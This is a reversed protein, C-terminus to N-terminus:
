RRSRSPSSNGANGQKKAQAQKKKGRVPIFGGADSGKDGGKDGGGGEKLVSSNSQTAPGSSVANPLVEPLTATEAALGEAVAITDPTADTDRRRRSKHDADGVSDLESDGSAVEEVRRKTADSKQQELQLSCLEEQQILDATTPQHEYYYDNYDDDWEGWEGAGDSMDFTNATPPPPVVVKRLITSIQNGIGDLVAAPVHAALLATVQSSANSVDPPYSTSCPFPSSTPAAAADVAQLEAM